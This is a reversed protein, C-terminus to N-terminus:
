AVKSLNPARLDRMTISSVVIPGGSQMRVERKSNYGHIGFRQFRSKGFGELTGVRHPNSEWTGIPARM